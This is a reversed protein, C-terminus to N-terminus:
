HRKMIEIVQDHTVDDFDHYFQGVTKFDSPVRLVKVDDVENKLSKVAQKSAIPLAVILKGPEQKRIWRAASIITAGTAAGDDVLIVTKGKIDYGRPEPRYLGM